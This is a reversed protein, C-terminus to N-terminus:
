RPPRPNGPNFNARDMKSQVDYCINEFGSYFYRSQGPDEFVKSREKRFGELWWSVPGPPEKNWTGKIWLRDACSLISVTWIDYVRERDLMPEKDPTRSHLLHEIDNFFAVVVKVHEQKRKSAFIRFTTYNQYRLSRISELASTLGIRGAKDLLNQYIQAQSALRAQELQRSQIRLQETQARSNARDSIRQVFLTIVSVFVTGAAVCTAVATAMDWGTTTGAMCGLSCRTKDCSSGIQESAGQRWLVEIVVRALGFGSLESSGIWVNTSCRRTLRTCRRRAGRDPRELEPMIM